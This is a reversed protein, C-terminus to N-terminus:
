AHIAKGFFSNPESVTRPRRDVRDSSLLRFVVLVVLVSPPLSLLRALSRPRPPM